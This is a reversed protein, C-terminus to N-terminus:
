ENDSGLYNTHKKVAEMRKKFAQAEEPSKFNRKWFGNSQGPKLSLAEHMLPDTNRTLEDDAAAIGTVGHKKLLEGRSITQRLTGRIYDMASHVTNEPTTDTPYGELLEAARSDSGARAAIPGKLLGLDKQLETRAAAIDSFGLAHLGETIKKAAM